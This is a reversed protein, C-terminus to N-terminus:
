DRPSALRERFTSSFEKSSPEFSELPMPVPRTPTVTPTALLEALPERSRSPSRVPPLKKPSPQHLKFTTITQPTARPLEDFALPQFTPQGGSPIPPLKVLVRSEPAAAPPAVLGLPTPRSDDAIPGSYTPRRRRTRTTSKSQQPPNQKIQEYQQELTAWAATLQERVRSVALRPMDIPTAPPAAQGPTAVPEPWTQDGWERATETTDAPQRAAAAHDGASRRGAEASAEHMEVAADRPTAAPPSSVVSPQRDAPSPALPAQQQSPRGSPESNAQRRGTIMWYYLDGHLYFSSLATLVLLLAAVSCAARPHSNLFSSRTAPDCVVRTPRAAAPRPPTPGVTSGVGCATARIVSADRSPTTRQAIQEYASQVQKFHDIADPDHQNRDPHYQRVLRYYARRIQEPSALRDVGLTLYPDHLM